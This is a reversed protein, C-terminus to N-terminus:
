PKTTAEMLVIVYRQHVGLCTLPVRRALSHCMGLCLGNEMV